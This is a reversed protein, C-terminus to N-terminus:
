CIYTYMYFCVTHIWKLSSMCSYVCFYLKKLFILNTLIGHFIVYSGLWCELQAKLPVVAFRWKLPTERAPRASSPKSINPEERGGDHLTKLTSFFNSGETFIREPDSCLPSIHGYFYYFIYTFFVDFTQSCLPTTTSHKVRSRRAATRAECADSHQTRSCSM